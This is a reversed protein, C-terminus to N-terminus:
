VNFFSILRSSKFASTKGSGLFGTIITIPIMNRIRGVFRDGPKLPHSASYTHKQFHHPVECTNIAQSQGRSSGQRTVYTAVGQNITDRMLCAVAGWSKVIRGKGQQELVARTGM